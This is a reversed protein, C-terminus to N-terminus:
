LGPWLRFVEFSILNVEGPMTNWHRVMKMMFFKKVDVRFSGVKLIM